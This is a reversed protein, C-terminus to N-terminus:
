LGVRSALFILVALWILLGTFPLWIVWNSFVRIVTVLAKRTERNWLVFVALVGLWFLSAWERNNLQDGAPIVLGLVTQESMGRSSSVQRRQGTPLRFRNRDVNARSPDGHAHPRM